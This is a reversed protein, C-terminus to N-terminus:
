QFKMEGKEEEWFVVNEKNKLPTDRIRCQLYHNKYRDWHEKTMLSDLLCVEEENLSWSDNDTLVNNNIINDPKNERIRIPTNSKPLVQINKMVAWKLAVQCATKGTRKTIRRFTLVEKDNAFKTDLASEESQVSSSSTNYTYEPKGFKGDTFSRYAQILIGENKFFEITSKRYLLPSIEFQNCFPKIPKRGNSNEIGNMIKMLELYDPVTYNSVGLRRIVGNESDLVETWLYKYAEAHKGEPVPWHILYLDLYDCKLEAVTKKLQQLIATEGEYVNQQWIKSIIFLDERQILPFTPDRLPSNSAESEELEPPLNVVTSSDTGSTCQQIIHKTRKFVKEFADGIEKENEYFQANDFTRYGVHIATLIATEIVKPDKPEPPPAVGGLKYCGFGVLHPWSPSM